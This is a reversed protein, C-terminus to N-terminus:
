NFAEMPFFIFPLLTLCASGVVGVIYLALRYDRINLRNGFYYYDWAELMLGSCYAINAAIAYFFVMVISFFDLKGALLITIIGCCCVVINYLVRRKEWWRIAGEFGPSINENTLNNDLIDQM